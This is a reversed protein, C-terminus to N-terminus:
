WLRSIETAVGDGCSLRPNYSCRVGTRVTARLEEGIVPDAIAIRETARRIAKGVATRVREEGGSFTRPRGGLGTAL